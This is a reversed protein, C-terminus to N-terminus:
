KIMQGSFVLEATISRNDSRPYSRHQDFAACHGDLVVSSRHSYQNFRVGSGFSPRSRYLTGRTCRPARYRVAVDCVITTITLSTTFRAHYLPRSKPIEAPSSNCCQSFFILTTIMRAADLGLVRGKDKPSYYKLKRCVFSQIRYRSLSARLKKSMM